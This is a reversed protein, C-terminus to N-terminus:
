LVKTGGVSRIKLIHCSGEGFVMEIKEKYEKVLDNPVFAQITGAFGGGHVRYAGQDKLVKSTLALALSLGQETPKSTPYVNQLLDYSSRGSEKVLTKFKEFDKALLSLVENDVRKNEDFIHIARLIAREGTIEKFKSINKYFEEEDVERLVEKNFFGCVTKMENPISAYEFTLDDHSGKTDVICLSHNFLEFNIALPVIVPYDKNEFDINVLGGVSSAMQDMLGSPKGFYTNEAYQGYKAIDIPSVIEDNYLGSLINGILVEFAASSSLGSGSLVESTVYANFGGIKYGNDAFSKVVGKILSTTTGEEEDKKSLDNLVISLSDYGESKLNIIFDDNKSVVALCDINVSAALVKGRQHDTHNGGVETRGPASYIEVEENDFINSFETLAKNYRDKQYEILNEDVYLSLLKENYLNNNLNDRIESIRNM